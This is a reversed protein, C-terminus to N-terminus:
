VSPAPYPLTDSLMSCSSCCISVLYKFTSSVLENAVSVAPVMLHARCLFIHKCASQTLFKDAQAMWNKM